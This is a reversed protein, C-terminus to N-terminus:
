SRPTSSRTASWDWGEGLLAALRADHPAYHEALRAVIEPPADPRPHVNRDIAAAPHGDALGLFQRVRALASGDGLESTQLLLFQERPFGGFWRELQDAYHGRAVYSHRRLAGDPDDFAAVDHVPWAATTPDLAVEIPRDEFGHRVAHHYESVARDVPDRLLVILPVHPLVDALRGPVGPHFLYYPSSEGTLARGHRRATRDRAWQTPFHARYWSVPRTAHLDFYHVERRLPGVVQPHACIRAHLTSTGAKQAGIIVFDPLPRWRSGAQRAGVQAARAVRELDRRVAQGPRTV